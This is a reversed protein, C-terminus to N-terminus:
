VGYQRSVRRHGGRAPRLVPLSALAEARRQELQREDGGHQPEAHVQDVAPAGRALLEGLHHALRAVGRLSAVPLVEARGQADDIAGELEVGRRGVGVGEGGGQPGIEPEVMVLGASPVLCHLGELLGLPGARARSIAVADLGLMPQGLSIRGRHHGEDLREALLAARAGPQEEGFGL